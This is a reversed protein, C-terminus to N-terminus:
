SGALTATATELNEIQKQQARYLAYNITSLMDFAVYLAQLADEINNFNTASQATGRQLVEGPAPNLTVTGNANTVESYTRPNQVVHDQWKTRIYPM